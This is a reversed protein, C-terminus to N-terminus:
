FFVKKEVFVSIHKNFLTSCVRKWKDGINPLICLCVSKLQSQYLNETISIDHFRIEMKLRYIEFYKVRIDKNANAEISLLLNLM